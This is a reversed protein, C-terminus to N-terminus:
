CRSVQTSHSTMGWSQALPYQIVKARISKGYGGKKLYEMSHKFIPTVTKTKYKEVIKQNRLRHQLGASSQDFEVVIAYVVGQENKEFGLVTGMTGNVLEDITNVNFVLSVRAGVKLKLENKFQTSGVTGKKKDVKVNANPLNTAPFVFEKSVICNMMNQNHRNKEKHTYMVHAADHDLFEQQTIRSRLVKVDEETYKGVRIRNLTNTWTSGEGQRHNYTLEFPEFVNWM